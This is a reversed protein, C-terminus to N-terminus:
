MFNCAECGMLSDLPLYWNQWREEYKMTCVACVQKRLLGPHITHRFGLVESGDLNSLEQDQSGVNCCYVGRFVALDHSCSAPRLDAPFQSGYSM